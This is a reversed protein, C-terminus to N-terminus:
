VNLLLNQQESQLLASCIAQAVDVESSINIDSIKNPNKNRLQETRQNEVVGPNVLHCHVNRGAFEACVTNFYGVLAAKSVNYALQGRVGFQYAQSGVLVVKGGQQKYRKFLPALLAHTNAVNTQFASLLLETSTSAIKKPGVQHVPNVGVNAIVANPILNPLQQQPTQLHAVFQEVQHTDSHDCQFTHITFAHSPIAPNKANLLATRAQQLTDCHRGTLILTLSSFQRQQKNLHQYVRFFEDALFRACAFGIGGSSGTILICQPQQFQESFIANEQAPAIKDITTPSTKM